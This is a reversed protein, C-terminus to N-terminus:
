ATQGSLHPGIHQFLENLMQNYDAQSLEGKDVQMQGFSCLLIVNNRLLDISDKSEGGSQIAHHFTQVHTAGAEKLWSAQATAVEVGQNAQQALSFFTKTLNYTAPHSWSWGQPGEQTILSRLFIVGNPALQHYIKEVIQCANPLFEMLGLAYIFNVPGAGDVFLGQCNELPFNVDWM